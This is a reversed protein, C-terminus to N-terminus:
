LEKKIAPSLSKKFSDEVLVSSFSLTSNSAKFQSALSSLQTHPHLRVGCPRCYPQPPGAHSMNAEGKTILSLM